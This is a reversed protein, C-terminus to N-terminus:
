QKMWRSKKEPAIVRDVYNHSIFIEAFNPIDRKLFLWSRSTNESGADCSLLLAIRPSRGSEKPRVPLKQLEPLSIARGGVFVKLGTAHAVFIVLNQNGTTLERVLDEYTGASALSRKGIESEVPDHAAIWDAPSGSLFGMKSASKEDAPLGNVVTIEQTTATGPSLQNLKAEVNQLNRQVWKTRRVVEVKDARAFSRVDIRTPMPGYIYLRNPSLRALHRRLDSARASSKSSLTYRTGHVPQKTIDYLTLMESGDSLKAVTLVCYHTLAKRSFQKLDNESFLRQLDNGALAQRIESDVNQLIHNIDSARGADLLFRNNIEFFSKLDNSGTYSDSSIDIVNPSYPRPAHSDSIFASGLQKSLAPTKLSTVNDTWVRSWGSLAGASDLVWKASPPASKTAFSSSAPVTGPVSDQKQAIYWTENDSDAVAVSWEKASPTNLHELVKGNNLLIAAAKVEDTRAYAKLLNDFLETRDNPNLNRLTEDLTKRKTHFPDFDESPHPRNEFPRYQPPRYEPARPPPPRFGRQAILVAPALQCLLLVLLLFKSIDRRPVSMFGWVLITINADFSNRVQCSKEMRAPHFANGGLKGTADESILFRKIVRNPDDAQSSRNSHQREIILKAAVPDCSAFFV